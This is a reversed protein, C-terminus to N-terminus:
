EVQSNQNEQPHNEEELKHLNRTLSGNKKREEEKKDTRFFFLHNEVSSHTKREKKESLM